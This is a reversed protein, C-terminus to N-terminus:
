RHLLLRSVPAAQSGARRQVGGAAGGPALWASMYVESSLIASRLRPVKLWAADARGAVAAAM